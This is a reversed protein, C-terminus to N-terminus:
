ASEFVHFVLGGGQLQYTGIHDGTTEPVEHGTGHTIIKRNIMSRDPDVRVWLCPLNDQVQVDLTVAGNPMMIKQEGTVELEYKWITEMM